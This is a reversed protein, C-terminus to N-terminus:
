LRADTVSVAAPELMALAGASARAQSRIFDKHADVKVGLVDELQKRIMRETTAQATGCSTLRLSRASRAGAPESAQCAARVAMDVSRLIKLTEVAVRAEDVAEPATPETLPDGQLLGANICGQEQLFTHAERVVEEAPADAAEARACAAGGHSCPGSRFPM